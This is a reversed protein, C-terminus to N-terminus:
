ANTCIYTMKAKFNERLLVNEQKNLDSFYNGFESAVWEVFKDRNISYANGPLKQLLNGTITISISDTGGSHLLACRGKSYLDTQEDNTLGRPALGEYITLGSLGAKFLIPSKGRHDLIGNRFGGLTEVLAFAATLVIFGFTHQEDNLGKLRGLPNLYRLEIRQKLIEVAKPWDNNPFAGLELQMFSSAPFGKAIENSTTEM